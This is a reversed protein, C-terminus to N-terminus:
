RWSEEKIVKTYSGGDFIDREIFRVGRIHSNYWFFVKIEVVKSM